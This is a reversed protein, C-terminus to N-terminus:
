IMVRPNMINQPDLAVKITKLMALKVPDARRVLDEKKMTGIGHEASISGGFADVTDFIVESVTQWKGLFKEKDMGYPQAINYHINGDGFHGFSVPRCGPILTEVKKGATKIFEPITQLPVTIDFKISGGLFKQGASMNERISLIQAAQTENQAIVADRIIGTEVANALKAQALKAGLEETEVDWDILVYWPHPSAFPDRQNPMNNVVAEFGIHPIVEFMSLADGVRCHGLLAMASTPNDVGVIARQIYGPKPFLKLSAATIIGLTGEAGLFLRSLDYGTNDKRLSTLGNYIEGSALVAEVGFVLDKTTGYKLVHNGGANTSLNGGITCSGQSALFLPFKREITDAARHISQLTAGAEVIMSNNVANLDRLKNMKRTSLLVEGMPTQGGVLGTNGGQPMIKINHQACIKVALAVEATNRPTLMLPTHGQYKDRWETLHPAIIDPDQTWSQTPLATKLKDLDLM